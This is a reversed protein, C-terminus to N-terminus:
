AHLKPLTTKRLEKLKEEGAAIYIQLEPLDIVSRPPPVVGEPLYIAQYLFERLLGHEEPRIKRIITNM